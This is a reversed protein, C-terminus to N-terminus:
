LPRLMQTRNRTKLATTLLLFNHHLCRFAHLLERLCQIKSQILEWVKIWLTAMNKGAKRLNWMLLLARMHAWMWKVMGTARNIVPFIGLELGLYETIGATIKWPMMVKHPFPFIQESLIPKSLVSVYLSNHSKWKWLFFKRKESQALTLPGPTPWSSGKTHKFSPKNRLVKQFM